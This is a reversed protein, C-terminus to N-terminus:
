VGELGQVIALIGRPSDKDDEHAVEKATYTAEAVGEKMM